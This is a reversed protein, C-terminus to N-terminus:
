VIKNLYVLSMVLYIGIVFVIGLGLILKLITVIVSDPNNESERIVRVLGMM